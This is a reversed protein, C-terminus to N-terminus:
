DKEQKKEYPREASPRRLPDGADILAAAQGLDGTAAARDDGRLEDKPAAVPVPRIKGGREFHDRGVDVGHFALALFQVEVRRPLDALFALLRQAHVQDQIGM